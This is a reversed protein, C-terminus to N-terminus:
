LQQILILQCYPTRIREKVKIKQRNRINVTWKENKKMENENMWKWIWKMKEHIWKKKQNEHFQTSFIM